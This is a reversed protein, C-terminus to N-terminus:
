PSSWRDRYNLLKGVILVTTALCNATLVSSGRLSCTATVRSSACYM